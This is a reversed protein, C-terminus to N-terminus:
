SSAADGSGAAELYDRRRGEASLLENARARRRFWVAVVGASALSVVVWLGLGWAVLRLAAAYDTM